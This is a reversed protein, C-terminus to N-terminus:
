FTFVPLITINIYIIYKNRLQKPLQTSTKKHFELPFHIFVQMSCILLHGRHLVEISLSSCINGFTIHLYM